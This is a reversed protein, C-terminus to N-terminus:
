LAGEEGGMLQLLKKKARSIRMEVAGVRISLRKAIEPATEGFYYKWMLLDRDGKSLQQMMAFLKACQEKRIYQAEPAPTADPMDLMFEADVQTAQAQQAAYRRYWDTCRHMTMTALLARISGRQLDIQARKQYFAFLIDSVLEEAEQPSCCNGIRRRVVALVFGSYQALLQRCGEEPDYLLLHLLEEDSM